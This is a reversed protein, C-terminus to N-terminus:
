RDIAVPEHKIGHATHRSRFAKPCMIEQAFKDHNRQRHSILYFHSATFSYKRELKWMESHSHDRNEKETTNVIEDGICLSEYLNKEVDTLQNNQVTPPGCDRLALSLNIRERPQVSSMDVCVNFNSETHTLQYSVYYGVPSHGSELNVIQALAMQPNIDRIAQTFIQEEQSSYMVNNRAEYLLSSNRRKWTKYGGTQNKFCRPWLLSLISPKVAVKKFGLKFNQPIHKRQSRILKM